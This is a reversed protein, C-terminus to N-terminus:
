LPDDLPSQPSHAQTTASDGTMGFCLNCDVYSGFLNQKM